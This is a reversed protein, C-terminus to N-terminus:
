HHDRWQAVELSQMQDNGKLRHGFRPEGTIRRSWCNGLAGRLPEPRGIGKFPQRRTANILHNM